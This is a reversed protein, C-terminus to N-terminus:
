DLTLPRKNDNPLIEINIGCSRMAPALIEFHIPSMQPCLVTYEKRMELLVVRHHAADSFM